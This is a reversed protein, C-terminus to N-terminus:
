CPSIPLMSVHKSIGRQEIERQSHRPTLLSAVKRPPRLDFENRSRVSVVYHNNNFLFQETDIWKYVLSGFADDNSISQTGLRMVGLLSYTNYAFIHFNLSNDGEGLLFGSCRGALKM